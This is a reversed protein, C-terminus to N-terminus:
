GKIGYLAFSSYQVWNSTGNTATISISTIAEPTKYWGGSALAVMGSGNNDVGALSRVTKGKNTSRYDLIDCILAGFVNASATAGAIRNCTITSTSGSADAQAVSGDGQVVHFSYNTTTDGNFQLSYYDTTSSRTSRAIGRIQLHTYTSPISSFSVSSAGGSGVTVSAISEYDGGAAAGGSSAIIGALTNLM